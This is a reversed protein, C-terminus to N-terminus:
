LPWVTCQAVTVRSCFEALTKPSRPPGLRERNRCVTELTLNSHFALSCIVDSTARRHLLEVANEDTGTTLKGVTQVLPCQRTIWLADALHVTMVIRILPDLLKRRSIQAIRHILCCNQMGSPKEFSVSFRSRLGSQDKVTNEGSSQRRQPSAKRQYLLSRRATCLACLAQLCWKGVIWGVGLAPCSDTAITSALTPLVISKCRRALVVADHQNV